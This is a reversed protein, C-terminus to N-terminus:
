EKVIYASPLWGFPFTKIKANPLLAKVARTEGPALEHNFQDLVLIGGPTLRQWFHEISHYVVDHLGADLFVLKFQLHPYKGFFEPLNKTLDLDHIRVINSVNQAAVLSLLRAKSETYSGAHVNPEESTPETGRFWDFGHVQVLSEPEFIQTLKAFLLTGAGKYVGLEAIHGAVGACMKYAEYLCLYRSLTMHGVFCPFYHLLEENSYGLALTDQLGKYYMPKRHMFKLSELDGPTYDSNM